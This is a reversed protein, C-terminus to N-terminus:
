RTAARVAPVVEAAFEKVQAIPDDGTPWFIFTDVTESLSVLQDIWHSKPGVLFGDVSESIAGAVNYVCRISRPDRGAAEAASAISELYGPLENPPAWGSSPVWGDAKRGILDLMRPGRAGVWIKIAHVPQPGTHLGALQYHRGSYRVGREGSWVLRIVDIAEEAAAVAEGPTRRPGGMAAVADAFGGAGLGLEIRGGSLFDLSAASKALIAPPRLALNIVDPFFRVKRTRAALFSILTWTDLFRWQYPHDQIGVLDLGGEDAAQVLTLLQDLEPWAPTVSIGFETPM